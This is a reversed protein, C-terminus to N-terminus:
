SARGRVGPAQITRERIPTPRAPVAPPPGLRAPEAASGGVYTGAGNKLLLARVAAHERTTACWLCTRNEYNDLNPDAGNEMLIKAIVPMGWCSAYFLATNGHGDRAHVDAGQRILVLVEELRGNKVADLLQAGLRETPNGPGPSTPAGSRQAAVAVAPRPRGAVRLLDATRDHKRSEAITLCRRADAPDIRAGNRLLLAAIEPMGWASAYFLASNGHRDEAKPNAGEALLKRVDDARGAKVAEILADSGGPVPGRSQPPGPAPAGRHSVSQSPASRPSMALRPDRAGRAALLNKVTDHGRLAAIWVSSMGGQGAANPDAGSRVLLNAVEDMGWAAAYFLATNGHDDRVNVDAGGAILSQLEELRDAKAAEILATDLNGGPGQFTYRSGPALRGPESRLGPPPRYGPGSSLSRALRPDTAGRSALLNKVTDHNRLAAIWM